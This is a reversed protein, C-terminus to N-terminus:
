VQPSLFVEPAVLWVLRWKKGTSRELCAVAGKKFDILDAGSDGAILRCALKGLFPEHGVIMLDSSKEDLRRAIPGPKDMPALKEHLMLGKESTIAPAILEATQQARVLGSHWIARVQIKLPTLFRALQQCFSRGATTLRRAADDGQPAAEEAQAHRVLYVRM